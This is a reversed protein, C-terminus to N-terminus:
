IKKEESGLHMESTTWIIDGINLLNWKFDYSSQTCNDQIQFLTKIKVKMGKVSKFIIPCDNQVLVRLTPKDLTEENTSETSEFLMCQQCSNWLLLAINRENSRILYVYYCNIWWIVSTWKWGKEIKKCQPFM